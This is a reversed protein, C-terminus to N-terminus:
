VKGISRRGPRGKPDTDKKRTIVWIIKTLRTDNMRGVRELLWIRNDEIKYRISKMKIKIEAKRDNVM